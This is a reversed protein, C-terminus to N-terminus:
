IASCASCYNGRGVLQKGVERVVVVWVRTSDDADSGLQYWIVHPLTEGCALREGEERTRHEM